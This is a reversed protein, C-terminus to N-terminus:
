TPWICNVLYGKKWVMMCMRFGIYYKLIIQVIEEVGTIFIITKSLM